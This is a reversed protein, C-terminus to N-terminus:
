RSRCRKTKTKERDGDDYLVHLSEGDGSLQTIRGRYWDSGSQWRCEVRSGVRWDYVKVQNAPRTEKQGDDYLITVTNGRADQVTGPFWYESGRWQALVWEGSQFDSAQVPLAVAFALALAGASLFKKM